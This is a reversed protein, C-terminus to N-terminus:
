IKVGIQLTELFKITQRASDFLSFKEKARKSMEKYNDRNISLVANLLQEVNKPEVIVGTKGNDVIESLGTLNTVIVPIGVSYSEIVIGPYGEGKYYTPLLLVDYKQLTSLVQNSTLAGCYNVSSNQFYDETYREDKIPGYLDITYGDPLDRAMEIIEDVGKEKFIQSIFVFRKRFLKPYNIDKPVRRVNPFWHTNSNISKFSNVINKMEFFLFDIHKFIYLRIRKELGTSSSYVRWAEGGFKRLSSNINLIKAMVIIFPAFFIYDRSSHLSIHKVQFSKFFISIFISLYAVLTNSYNKKNSDILIYDVRNENFEELLNNFLVIAGGTKTSDKRNVCPGILLIDHRSKM